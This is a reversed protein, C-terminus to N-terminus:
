NKSNVEGDEDSSFELANLQADVDMMGQELANLSQFSDSDDDSEATKSETEKRKKAKSVKGSISNLEKKVKKAKKKLANLEKKAKDKAYESKSKWQKKAPNSSGSTGSKSAKLKKLVDCDKTSHTDTEHYDCWKKGNSSHSKTKNKDFKVKKKSVENSNEKGKENRGTEDSAEMRECFEVLETISKLFPDFDFKDMEKKWSNPLGFLIIEKFEDDTFKGAQGRFPPLNPLEKTNIRTMHNVYQRTNMNVPKRMKRRMFRKQNELTRYPCVISIISHIGQSYDEELLAPMVVAARAARQRERWQERTEANAEDQPAVNQIAHAQMALFRLQHHGTTGAELATLAEGECMEKMLHYRESMDTLNMGIFVKDINDCWTLHDRISQTGDVKMMTFSYKTATAPDAQAAVPSTFLKFSCYKTSDKDDTSVDDEPILSLPPVEKDNYAM